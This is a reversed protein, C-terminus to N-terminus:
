AAERFHPGTRVVVAPAAAAPEEERAPPSVGKAAGTFLKMLEVMTRFEEVKAKSQSTTITNLVQLPALLADFPNGDSAPRAAGQLLTALLQMGLSEPTGTGAGAAAPNPAVQQLHAVVRNLTENGEAVTRELVALREVLKQVFPSAAVIEDFQGSAALGKVLPIKDAWSDGNAM